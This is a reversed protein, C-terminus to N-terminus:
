VTSCARIKVSGSSGGGCSTQGLEAIAAREALLERDGGM